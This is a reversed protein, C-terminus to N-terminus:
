LVSDFGVVNLLRCAVEPVVEFEFIEGGLLGIAAGAGAIKGAGDALLELEWHQRVVTTVPVQRMQLTAFCGQQM